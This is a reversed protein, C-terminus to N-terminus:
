ACGIVRLQGIILRHNWSLVEDASCCLICSFNAFIAGVGKVNVFRTLTEEDSRPIDDLLGRTGNLNEFM